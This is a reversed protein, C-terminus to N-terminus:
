ALDPRDYESQVMLIKLAMCIRKFDDEMQRLYGRFVRCRQSRFAAAMKPTFGPQARLFHLDEQDLLRSMPRYREISLEDIWHATVPLRGPSALQRIVVVLAALLAVSVVSAAIIPVM